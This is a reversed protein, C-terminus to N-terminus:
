RLHEIIRDIEAHNNYFHPSVRLRGNRVSCYIKNKVLEKHLEEVDQPECSVTASNHEPGFDYYPVDIESLRRRLYNANDMATTERDKGSIKLITKLSEL